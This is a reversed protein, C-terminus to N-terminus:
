AKLLAPRLAKQGFIYLWFIPKQNVNCWIHVHERDFLFFHFANDLAHSSANM